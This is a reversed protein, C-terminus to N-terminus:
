NPELGFEIPVAMRFRVAVGNRKGPEFQWSRVARLAPEVFERHTSRIVEAQVVHGETNVVFEVVVSGKIGDQKMSAPYDPSRQVTARPIRDLKAPSFTVPGSSPGGVDTGPGTLKGDYGELSVVGKVPIDPRVAITFKDPDALPAPTEPLQVVAQGGGAAGTECDDPPDPPEVRITPPFNDIELPGHRTVVPRHFNTRGLSSILLAGHLGAAVLVPWKYRQINM